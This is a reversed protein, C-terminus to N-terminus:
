FIIIVFERLEGYMSDRDDWICFFRLVKRDNELFRRLRDNREGKFNHVRAPRVRQLVYNDVPMAEPANLVIGETEMLYHETFEDCSVIRFTKGYFTINIGLNFDKICYFDTSNKPLRQRKILVGQLIGSNEVPPEVVAISDDELFYHILVKRLHFQETSEHVTEKFYADFRL